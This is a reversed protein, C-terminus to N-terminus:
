NHMINIYKVDNIQKYFSKEMLLLKKTCVLKTLFFFSHAQIPTRDISPKKVKSFKYRRAVSSDSVYLNSRSDFAVSYPLVLSSGGSGSGDTTIGTLNRNCFLQIRFNLRDLIYVNNWRDLTM